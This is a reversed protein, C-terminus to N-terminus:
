PADEIRASGSVHTRLRAPHGHLRVLASGSIGIDAEDQAAIQVKGSGSIKIDASKVALGQLDADASGALDLSVDQATGNGIVHASGSVLLHLAKQDLGALNLDSSGRISWTTIAPGTLRVTLRSVPGCDVESDFGLRGGDLRVHRIVAPDGGIVAEGKPGPQYSISAPLSIELSDTPEFAITVSGPGAGSPSAEDASGSTGGARFLWGLAGRSCRAGSGQWWSADANWNAGALSWGLLLCVVAVTLGLTALSALKRTM